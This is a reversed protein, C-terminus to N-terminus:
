SYARYFFVITTTATVLLTWGRIIGPPLRRGFRAGFYGGVVGGAMMPLCLAWAVMGTAAFVITAAANATALMLTRPAAL